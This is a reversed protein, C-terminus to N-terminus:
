SFEKDKSANKKPRGGKKGNERSAAKKAESRSLGGRRGIEAASVSKVPNLFEKVIPDLEPEKVKEKTGERAKKIIEEIRRDM